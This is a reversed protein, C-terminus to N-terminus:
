IKKRFNYVYDIYESYLENVETNNIMLVNENNHIVGKVSPNLSGTISIDTDFTFVKTHVRRNFQDVRVGPIRSHRISTPTIGQEEIVGKITVNRRTANRISSIVAPNTLAYVAFEVQKEVSDILEVYALECRQHPCFYAVVSTNENIQIWEKSENTALATQNNYMTWFDSNYERALEKSNIVVIDHFNFDITNNNFITSGTIVTEGDIICYNNHMMSYGAPAFRVYPLHMKKNGLYDADIYLRVRTGSQEKSIFLDELEESNLSRLACHIEKQSNEIIEYFRKLGIESPMFYVELNETIYHDRPFNIKEPQFIKLVTLGGLILIQLVIGIILINIIIKQKKRSRNRETIQKERFKEGEENRGKLKKEEINEKKNTKNLKPM